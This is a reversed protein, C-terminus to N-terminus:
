HRQKMVDVISLLIVNMTGFLNSDCVRACVSLGVLGESVPRM